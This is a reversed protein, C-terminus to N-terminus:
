GKAEIKAMGNLEGSWGMGRGDKRCRCQRSAYWSKMCVYRELSRCTCDTGMFGAVLWLEHLLEFLGM